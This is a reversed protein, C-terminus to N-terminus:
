DSTNSVFLYSGAASICFKYDKMLDLKEFYETTLIFKDGPIIIIEEYNAMKINENKLLFQYCDVILRDLVIRNDWKGNVPSNQNNWLFYIPYDEEKVTLLEVVKKIELREQNLNVIAKSVINGTFFSLIAVLIINILIKKKNGHYVVFLFKFGLIGILAPFYINFPTDMLVLGVSHICNFNKLGSDTIVLNTTITLFGFSILILLLVKNSIIDKDMLKAFGLLLIPGIIMETYRGYVIHDIRTPNIMFIVSIAISSFLAILLFTYLYFYYENNLINLNKNKISSIITKGTKQILEYLGFYFILYSAAGLYFFQGIFVKLAKVAGEITFMQNIKSTMSSYDNALNGVNNLWLNSQINDKLYFHIIMSLTIPLIVSLYQTWNIKKFIKMLIIVLLSAVLIGLARQHIVYVYISLFGISIFKINNSKENLGLFCWTLLWCVFILLCEGWAISSYAVYTPYMSIFFSIGILIYKNASNMLKRAIDYCLLFSTSLMIGNLIIAAKYMHIPNDFIWFLPVLLLSYGYSYYPIQSLTNSWNLGALYAAIGWYGFEDDLVSFIGISGINRIHILFIVLMLCLLVIYEKKFTASKGINYDNVMKYSIWRKIPIDYLVYAQLGVVSSM